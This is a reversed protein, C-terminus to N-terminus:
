YPEKDGRSCHGCVDSDGDIDALGSEKTLDIDAIFRSGRLQNIRTGDYNVPIRRERTRRQIEVHRGSMLLMPCLVATLIVGTTAGHVKDTVIPVVAFVHRAMLMTVRVVPVVMVMVVPMVVIMVMIVIVIVIVIVIM